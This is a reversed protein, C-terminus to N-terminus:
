RADAAEAARRAGSTSCKRFVGLSKPMCRNCFISYVRGSRRIICETLRGRTGWFNLGRQAFSSTTEHCCAIGRCWEIWTDNEFHHLCVLAGRGQLRSDIQVYKACHAFSRSISRRDRAVTRCRFAANADQAIKQHDVSHQRLLVPVVFVRRRASSKEIRCRGRAHSRHRMEQALLRKHLGIRLQGFNNALAACM